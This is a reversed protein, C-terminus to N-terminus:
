WNQVIKVEKRCGNCIYKRSPKRSFSGVFGHNKCGKTKCHMSYKKDTPKQEMLDSSYCRQPIAGVTVCTQKWRNGHGDGPTLAHAIEHLVTDLVKRKDKLRGFNFESVSITRTAYDCIGLSKKRNNWAFSWDDLGCEQLSNWAFSEVVRKTVRFNEPINDIYAM